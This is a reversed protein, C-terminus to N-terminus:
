GSCMTCAEKNELSCLIQAQERETLTVTPKAKFQTDPKLNEKSEEEEVSPINETEKGIELGLKRTAKVVQAVESKSNEGKNEKLVKLKTQDVTFQIANVAPRSRLYYMGTKLGAKWGYFHMAGIQRFNPSSMHVNLSQSQCIFPGRDAAMEIISKQSIEWVTRFVKKIHDPIGEINQISGGNAIMQIKVDESWLGLSVLRELLHSNVVQFEGSLVRRIYINTTYPEISENNGLIQATSATPMPALLLSNRVGFQAIKGKLRDWDYLNSPTVGWLDFQLKGQSIPSGPYTEYYGFKEALECSAEVAGHYITEFIQKNLTRAQPDDFPLDM